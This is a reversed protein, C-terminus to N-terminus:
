LFSQYNHTETYVHSFITFKKQRIFQSCLNFCSNYLDIDTFTYALNLLDLFPNVRKWYSPHSFSIILHDRLPNSNWIHFTSMERRIILEILYIENIKIQYFKMNIRIETHPSKFFSFHFFLSRNGSECPILKSPLIIM